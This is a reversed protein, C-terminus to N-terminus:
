EPIVNLYHNYNTIIKKVYNVAEEGRCYGFRVVPDKYFKETSKNRLFYDVNDDWILRDKGFKDALRQADIVHGLGINYSALVFKVRETSDPISEQFHKNLWNLMLIGSKINQEPEKFNEIGLSEATGPMIQMLGYAGAWSGAEPNFRSEQYIISSILRWDWNYKKSLEKILKDYISIKGGNISHFESGMRAKTRPSEFYKHYLINYKSSGKVGNIWNDLYAKWEDSGKRVAWAINQPFSVKVSVDLNPYYMQNLRAVNEDCVTYDIEGKAVLSILQEVGFVSDEIVEIPNGIEESLNILREYYSTNKQIYVKKHALELTTHVFHSEDTKAEKQRQVLVQSTQEIPVTFDIERNRQQTVTLNKAILDFRNNKLGEFSESLNNSVVIELDVGLDKALAQLLDYKFGMPKGRYVFYNTSNYDVAAKLVGSEKIRELDDPVPICIIGSKNIEKVRNCSFLGLVSIFLLFYKVDFLRYTLYKGM